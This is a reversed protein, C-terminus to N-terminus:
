DSHAWPLTRRAFSAQGTFVHFIYSGICFKGFILAALAAVLFGEFAYAAISWGMQLSVGIALMFTAAMGQAFRRPGPAPTLKPRAPPSAILANYLVDFINLSPVAASWCLIASLILFVPASQLILGAAVALAIVRPQWMLSAYQFGCSEGRTQEFGQQRVFNLQGAAVHGGGAFAAEQTKESRNQRM